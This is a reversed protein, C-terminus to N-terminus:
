SGHAATALERRCNRVQFALFLMFGMALILEIVENYNTIFYYFRSPDGTSNRYARWVLMPLFFPILTFHPVVADVLPRMRKWRTSNLFFLPLVTGYAGVLMQVWKFTSGVGYINHLNTEEQKNIAALSEPTGWGFLRQGWSVEEGILFFLGCALGVYLVAILLDRSKWRARVVVFCMLWAAAYSLVQLTEAIGDEETYTKYVAKGCAAAVLGSIAVMVPALLIAILTRRSVDWAEAGSAVLTGLAQRLSLSEYAKASNSQTTESINSM